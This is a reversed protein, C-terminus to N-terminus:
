SCAHKLDEIVEGQENKQLYKLHDRLLFIAEVLTISEDSLVLDLAEGMM